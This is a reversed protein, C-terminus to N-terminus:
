ASARHDDLRAVSDPLPPNVIERLAAEWAELAERKEVLRESKNYVQTLTDGKHGVIHHIIEDSFGMNGLQTQVTRRLDHPTWKPIKAGPDGRMQRFAALTAAEVAKRKKDELTLANNFKTLFVWPRHDQRTHRGLIERVMQTLPIVHDRGQKTRGKELVIREQAFDIESWQLKCIENLRAGTLLMLRYADHVPSGDGTAMWLARIEDHSLEREGMKKVGITSKVRKPRYPSDEILECDVCWNFFTGIKQGVNLAQRQKGRANISQLVELIDSMTIDEVARGKWVPLCERQFDQEDEKWKKVGDRRRGAIFTALVTEFARERKEAEAKAEAKAEAEIREKREAEAARVNVGKAAGQHYGNVIERATSLSVKPYRGVSLRTPNNSGPLRGVFLFTVSGAYGKRVKDERDTVRVAFGPTVSDYIVVSKGAPAPKLASLWKDTFKVKEAAM